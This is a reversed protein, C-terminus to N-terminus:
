IQKVKPASLTSLRIIEPHPLVCPPAWPPISSFVTYGMALGIVMAYTQCGVVTSAWALSETLTGTDLTLPLHANSKMWADYKGLPDSPHPRLRIKLAKSESILHLNEVFYDLAFFEGPKALPGWAQRIPELVLLLHECNSNSSNAKLRRVEQVLNELYLNPLQVVPINPFSSTALQKAHADSVWIEDPLIEEGDRIFRQQYNTWHDIVAISYIGQESALKRADHELSSQWGTGTIITAASALAVALASEPLPSQVFGRRSKQLRTQWLSRAPGALCLNCLEDGLWAFIHNAAGADHAVVTLPRALKKIM